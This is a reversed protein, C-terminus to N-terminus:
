PWRTTAAPSRQIIRRSCMKLFKWRPEPTRKRGNWTASVTISPASCGSYLTGLLRYAEAPTPHRGSIERAENPAAALLLKEADAYRGQLMHLGGLYVQSDATDIHNPGLVKTRLALAKQFLTEAQQLDGRVQHLYGMFNVTELTDPHEPGLAKTRIALAKEFYDRALDWDNYVYAHLRALVDYGEGIYWHEPSLEDEVRVIMKEVLAVIEKTRGEKYLQEAEQRAQLVEFHVCGSLGLAFLLCLAANRTRFTM